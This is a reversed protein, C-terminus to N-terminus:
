FNTTNGNYSSISIVAVANRAAMTPNSGVVKRKVPAQEAM